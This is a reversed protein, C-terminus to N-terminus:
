GCLVTVLPRRRPRTGATRLPCWLTKPGQLLADPCCPPPRGAQRCHADREAICSSGNAGSYGVVCLCNYLAPSGPLSVSKAPCATCAASGTINKYTSAACAICSAGTYGVNCLCATSVDSATALTTSSGLCSTCNSSGTSSKYKGVGCATCAWGDAGTFGATCKCSTALQMLLLQSPLSQM